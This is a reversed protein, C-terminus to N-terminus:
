PANGTAAANDATLNDVAPDVPTATNAQLGDADNRFADETAATEENSTVESVTLNKGADGKPSCAAVALMAALVAPVALNIKKM